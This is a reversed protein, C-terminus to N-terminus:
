GGDREARALQLDYSAAMSRRVKRRPAASVTPDATRDAHPGITRGDATGGPVGADGFGDAGVTGAEAPPDRDTM